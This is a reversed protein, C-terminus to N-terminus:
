RSHYALKAREFQAQVVQIQARWDLLSKAIEQSRSDPSNRLAHAILQWDEETFSQPVYLSKESM